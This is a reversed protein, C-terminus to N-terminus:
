VELMGKETVTEIQTLERETFIKGLDLLILLRDGLKGVGQLYAADIGGMMVSSPPEIDAADIRLVETVSDVVMGMTTDGVEIVVIRTGEGREGISLDFRKSLNIVTIIKGRLNIVGDVFEPARPMRTIKAMKIIERVQSIEAGFEENGLDFVVLQVEGDTAFMEEHM